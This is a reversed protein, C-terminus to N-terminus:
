PTQKKTGLYVNAGGEVEIIQPYNLAEPDVSVYFCNRAKGFPVERIRDGSRLMERAVAVADALHKPSTTRMSEEEEKPLM